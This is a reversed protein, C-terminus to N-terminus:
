EISSRDRELAPRWFRKYHCEPCLAQPLKTGRAVYSLTDPVFDLLLEDACERCFWRQCDPCKVAGLNADYVCTVM